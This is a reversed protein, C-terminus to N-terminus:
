IVGLARLVRKAGKYAASAEEPSNFSALEVWRANINITARWKGRKNRSVGKFGSTNAANCGTNHMNSPRSAERLNVLRNDTRVRNVHDIEGVPFEGHTYLWALRHATYTKGLMTIHWYGSHHLSGAVEGAKKGGKSVRRTFIGTAPDYNLRARLTEADLM